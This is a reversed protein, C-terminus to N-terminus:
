NSRLRGAAVTLLTLVLVLLGWTTLSPVGQVGLGRWSGPNFSQGAPNLLIDGCGDGASPGSGGQDATSTTALTHQPDGPQPAPAERLSLSWQVIEGGADTSVNFVCFTSDTLTRVAVGDTFSLDLLSLNLDSISANPPLRRNVTISGNVSDNLTYPPQAFTFRRGTYVYATPVAPLVAASNWNGPEFGIASNITLTINGCDTAAAPGTGAIDTTTTTDLIQHPDGPAPAPAARLFVQWLVIDGRADTAAQFGCIISDAPTRVQQGDTFSFDLLAFSLDTMPMFPPLGATATFGGTISDGPSYPPTVTDFPAGTYNYDVPTDAPADSWSGGSNAQAAVNLTISDCATAGAPGIGTTDASTFIDMIQQPDGAAPVPAERVSIAWDTINGGADTAVEFSCIVSNALTRTQQGDTFSFDALSGSVDTLPLSPKIPIPFSIEGTIRDGTSYPPDASDFPSGIYSYVTDAQVNLVPMLSLCFVSAAIYRIYRSKM